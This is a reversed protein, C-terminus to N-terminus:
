FHCAQNRLLLAHRSIEYELAKQPACNIYDIHDEPPFLLGPGCHLCAGLHIRFLGGGRVRRKAWSDGCEPCVYTLPMPINGSLGKVRMSSMTTEGLPQGAVEYQVLYHM